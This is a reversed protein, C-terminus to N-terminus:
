KFPPLTATRLRNWACLNYLARSFNVLFFVNEGEKKGRVVSESGGDSSRERKDSRRHCASCNLLTSTKGSNLHRGSRWCSKNETTELEFGRDRKYKSCQRYNTFLNFVPHSGRNNSITLNKNGYNTLFIKYRHLHNADTCSIESLSEEWGEELIKGSLDSIVKLNSTHSSNINAQARYGVSVSNKFETFSSTRYWTLFESSEIWESQRIM